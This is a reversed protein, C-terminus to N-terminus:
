TALPIGCVDDRDRAYEAILSPPVIRLLHNARPVGSLLLLLWACQTDPLGPLRDLLRREEVMRAVGRQRVYGPCGLPTGLVMIGNLHAPLDATWVDPGLAALGPPAPGGGRCWARLKGMHSRVGCHHEITQTVEDIAARARERTTILYLDDLFSFLREGPHLNGAAAELGSHQGTSYLAPM